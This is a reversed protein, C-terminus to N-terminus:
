QPFRENILVREVASLDGESIVISDGEYTADDLDSDYTRETQPHGWMETEDDSYECSCSDLDISSLPVEKTITITVMQPQPYPQKLGRVVANDNIASTVSNFVQSGM